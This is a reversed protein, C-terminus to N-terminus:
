DRDPMHQEADNHRSEAIKAELLYYFAPLHLEWRFCDFIIIIQQCQVSNDANEIWQSVANPLFISKFTPVGIPGDEEEYKPMEAFPKPTIDSGFVFFDFLQALVFLFFAFFLLFFLFSNFIYLM